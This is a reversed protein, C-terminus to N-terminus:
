GFTGPEPKTMFNSFTKLAPKNKQARQLWSCVHADGPLRLRWTEYSAFVFRRDMANLNEALVKREALCCCRDWLM